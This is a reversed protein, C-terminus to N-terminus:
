VMEQDLIRAREFHEVTGFTEASGTTLRVWVHEFVTHKRLDKLGMRELKDVIREKFGLYDDRSM